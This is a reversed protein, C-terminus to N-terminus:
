TVRLRVLDGSLDDFEAAAADRELSVQPIADSLLAKHMLTLGAIEHEERLRLVQRPELLVASAGVVLRIVLNADDHLVCVLVWAAISKVDEEWFLLSSKLPLSNTTHHSVGLSVLVRDVLLLLHRSLM